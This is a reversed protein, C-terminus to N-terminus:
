KKCNSEHDVWDADQCKTNCYNVRHCGSCSFNPNQANCRACRLSSVELRRIIEYVNCRDCLPGIHGSHPYRDTIRSKCSSCTFPQTAGHQKGAVMNWHTDCLPANMTFGFPAHRNAVATCGPFSCHM